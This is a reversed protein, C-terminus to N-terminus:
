FRTDIVILVLLVPLYFVTARLLNRADLISKSYFLIRAANLLFMGSLTAGACYIWGFHPVTLLSLSVIILLISHGLIHRFTRSGANDDLTIMKFGANEYDQRYMWAIAYFHPHQWFFLIAFLILAPLDITGTAAAWGGVPPLAGPISGITTNLWSFRKMPTYVLVYLFSTLLSLFATLLNIKIYLVALGALTLVIGFALANAPDIDGKPIPRSRTRNM